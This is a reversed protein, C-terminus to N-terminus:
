VYVLLNDWRARSIKLMGDVDTGVSYSNLEIPKTWFSWRFWFILTDM